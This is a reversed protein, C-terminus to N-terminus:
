DAEGHKLKQCAQEVHDETLQISSLNKVWTAETTTESTATSATATTTSVVGRKVPKSCM